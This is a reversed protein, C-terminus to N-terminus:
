HAAPKQSNSAPTRRRAGGAMRMKHWLFRAGKKLIRPNKPAHKLMGLIVGPHSYYSRYVKRAVIWLDSRTETWDLKIYPSPGDLSWDGILSGDAKATEYAKTGPLPTMVGIGM